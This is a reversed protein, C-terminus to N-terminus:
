PFAPLQINVRSYPGSRAEHSDTRCRKGKNHRPCLDMPVQSQMKVAVVVGLEICQIQGM